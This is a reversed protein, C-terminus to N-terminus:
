MHFSYYLCLIWSKWKDLVESDGRSGMVQPKVTCHSAVLAMKRVLSKLDLLLIYTGLKM